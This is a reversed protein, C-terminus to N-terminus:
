EKGVEMGKERDHCRPPVTSRMDLLWIRPRECDTNRVLVLKYRIQIRHIRIRSLTFNQVLKRYCSVKAKFPRYSKNKLHFTLM